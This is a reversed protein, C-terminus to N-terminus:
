ASSDSAEAYAVADPRVFQMAGGCVDSWKVHIVQKGALRALQGLALGVENAGLDWRCTERSVYFAGPSNADRDRWTDALIEGDEAVIVGDVTTDRRHAQAWQALPGSVAPDAGANILVEAAKARYYLHPTTKATDM